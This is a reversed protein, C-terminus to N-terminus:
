NYVCRPSELRSHWRGQLFEMLKPHVDAGVPSAYDYWVAFPRNDKAYGTLFKELERHPLAQDVGFVEPAREPGTRAGEWQEAGPDRPNVFLTTNTSDDDDICICLLSAPELCGTLYLFDTSQRFVYPIKESMFKKGAGPVIILHKKIAEPSSVTSPRSRAINECLRERRAKFESLSVGPTVEGPALLHPHTEATPQGIPHLRLQHSSAPPSRVRPSGSGVVTSSSSMFRSFSGVRLSCFRRCM